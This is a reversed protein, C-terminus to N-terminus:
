DFLPMVANARRPQRTDDLSWATLENGNVMVVFQGDGFLLNPSAIRSEIVGMSKSSVRDSSRSLVEVRRNSNVTALQALLNFGIASISNQLGPECRVVRFWLLSAERDHILLYYLRTPCEALIAIGKQNLDSTLSPSHDLSVSGWDTHAFQIKRTFTSSEQFPTDAGLNLAYTRLTPEIWWKGNQDRGEQPHVVTLRDGQHNLAILSAKSQLGLVSSRRSKFDWLLLSGEFSLAVTQGGLVFFGFQM